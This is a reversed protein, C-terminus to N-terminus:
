EGMNDLVFQTFVKIGTEICGEDVDFINQHISNVFGKEENHIGLRFMMGPKKMTFFSFDEGGMTRTRQLVKDKGLVKIASERLRETINPDNEVVPLFKNIEFTAKGGSENAVASIIGKLREIVFDNVETCWTRLTGFLKCYDCVINNTKGGEFQGINLVCPETPIVEKAVMFEIATYAKVAMSIADVASYQQAAHMSKGFFEITFGMSNANQGGQSIGITGVDYGNDVHLAVICDIDDMVGDEAMLKAGSNTFEEAAQFIFKVRCNIKDKIENLRKVTGLLVATHVDHGCAHMKGKNKSKYPVDNIETIPLADMDARIGITFQDKKDNITAVISSKGYKETYKVGMKELESKILAVTKTLDFGIEPYMHLQRRINIAYESM